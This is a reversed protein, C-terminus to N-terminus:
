SRKKKKKKTIVKTINKSIPMLKNPIFNKTGSCQADFIIYVIFYYILYIGSFFFAFLTTIFRVGANENCNCQFAIYATIFSIILSVILAIVATKDNPDFLPIPEMIDAFGERVKRKHNIRDVIYNGTLFELM